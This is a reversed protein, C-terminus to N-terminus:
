FPFWWLRWIHCYWFPTYILIITWTFFMSLFMRYFCNLKKNWYFVASFISDFINLLTAAKLMKHPHTFV